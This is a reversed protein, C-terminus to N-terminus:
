FRYSVLVSLCRVLEDLISRIYWEVDVKGELEDWRRLGIELRTAILLLAREDDTLGDAVPRKPAMLSNHLSSLPFLATYHKSVSTPHKPRNRPTDPAQPFLQVGRPTQPVPVHPHESGTLRLDTSRPTLM